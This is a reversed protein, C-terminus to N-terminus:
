NIPFIKKIITLVLNLKSKHEFLGIQLECLFKLIKLKEFHFLRIRKLFKFIGYTIETINYGENCIDTFIEFALLHNRNFVFYLFEAIMFISPVFCSIKVTLDTLKFFSRSGIEIARELSLDFAM